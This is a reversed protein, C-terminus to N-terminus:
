SLLWKPTVYYHLVSGGLGGWELSLIGAKKFFLVSREDGCLLLSALTSLHPEHGVLMVKKKLQFQAIRSITDVCSDNPRFGDLLKLTADPYEKAFYEATELARQYGSHLIIDIGDVKRGFAKAVKETKERGEPTLRRESDRRGSQYAHIEDEAIGHRVLFLEM